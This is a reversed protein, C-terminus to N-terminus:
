ELKVLVGVEIGDEDDYEKDLEVVVLHGFLIIL